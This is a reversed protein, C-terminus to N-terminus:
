KGTSGFGGLGRGTNSLKENLKFGAQYVPAFVMQAVRDGIKITYDESGLNILPIGVVNRYDSDITGVCNILTIGHKLSLGSRPRIQAEFNEPIELTFGTSILKIEGKKITVEEVSYLDAGASFETGYTPIKADKSTTVIKVDIKKEM